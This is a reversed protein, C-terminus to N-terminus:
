DTVILITAPGTDEIADECSIADILYEDYPEVVISKVGERTMLEEVLDCTAVSKLEQM